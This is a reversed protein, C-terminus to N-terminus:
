GTRCALCRGELSATACRRLHSPVASGGQAALPRPAACSPVAPVNHGGFPSPATRLMKQSQTKWATAIVIFLLIVLLVIDSTNSRTYHDYHWRLNHSQAGLRPSITGFSMVDCRSLPFVASLCGNPAPHSSRPITQLIFYQPQGSQQKPCVIQCSRIQCRKTRRM